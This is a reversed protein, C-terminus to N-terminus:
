EVDKNPVCRSFADSALSDLLLLDDEPMRRILVHAKNRNNGDDVIIVKKHGHKLCISKIKEVNGIGFASSKKIGRIKRFLQICSVINDEFTQKFYEIWNVSLGKEGERLQFAEPLFGIPNGDEDRRLRKSSVHRMVHDEDPINM